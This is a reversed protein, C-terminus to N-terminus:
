PPSWFSSPVIDSLKTYTTSSLKPYTDVSFGGIINGLLDIGGSNYLPTGNKM